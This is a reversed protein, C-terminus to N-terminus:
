LDMTGNSQGFADLECGFKQALTLLVNAHPTGNAASVQHGLHRGGKIVGGGGGAVIAPLGTHSHENGLSMGSGYLVVSHDLLSGDGDPTSRLKDLFNAFMSMEYTNVAAFKRKKEANNGHHSLPHHGDTFGLEPYNHYTVDRGNMFSAVRTIDAQFAVAILDFQLAVHEAFSDPIGSPAAPTSVKQSSAQEARQIRREIARINDLYESVRTQDQAGLGRQLRQAEGRIDDLISANRQRVILRQEPSGAGGFLREFVIRPNLEMPVPTTPSSWSITNMYACSFGIECAGVTESFDETALELSPYITEQGIQRAIVQDVSVGARIDAGQTKKATAGTLWSAPALAHGGADVTDPGNLGTAIVLWDRFPELPKLIPTFDFGVGSQQPTFAEIIWGHPVYVGAFRRVPNAATRVTATFAPVMADLLPLAVTASLGRLFTRRPLSRKTIFM